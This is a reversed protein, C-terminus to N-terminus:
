ISFLTYDGIDGDIPLLCYATPETCLCAITFLDKNIKGPSCGHIIAINEAGRDVPYIISCTYFRFLHQLHFKL